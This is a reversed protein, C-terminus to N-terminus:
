EQLYTTSQMTKATKRHIRRLILDLTATFAFLLCVFIYVVAFITIKRYVALNIYTLFAYVGTAVYCLVSLSLTHKEQRKGLPLTKEGMRRKWLSAFMACGIFFSVFSSPIHCFIFVLIFAIAAGNRSEQPLRVAYVNMMRYEAFPVLVALFVAVIISAVQASRNIREWAKM